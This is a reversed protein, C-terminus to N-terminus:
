DTAETEPESEVPGGRDKAPRPPAPKAARGPAAAGAATHLAFPDDLVPPPVAIPAAHDDARAARRPPPPAATPRHPIPADHAVERGHGDHARPGGPGAAPGHGPALAALEPHAGPDVAASTPPLMATLTKKGAAPGEPADAGEVEPVEGPRVSRKM